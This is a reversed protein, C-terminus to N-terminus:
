RARCGPRHRRVPAHGPRTKDIGGGLATLAGDLVAQIADLRRGHEVRSGEAAARRDAARQAGVWAAVSENLRAWERRTADLRLKNRRKTEDSGSM